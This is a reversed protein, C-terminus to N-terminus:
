TVLSSEFITNRNRFDFLFSFELGAPRHAVAAIHKLAFISPVQLFIFISTHVYTYSFDEPSVAKFLYRDVCIGELFIETCISQFKLLKHDM